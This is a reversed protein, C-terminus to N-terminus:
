HYVTISINTGDGILSENLVLGLSEDGKSFDYVRALDMQVDMNGSSWGNESLKNVMWAEAEDIALSTELLIFDGESEGSYGALIKADPPIPIDERSWDEVSFNDMLEGLEEGTFQEAIGKLDETLEQNGTAELADQLQDEIREQVDEGVNKALQGPLNCALTLIILSSLAMWLIRNKKV